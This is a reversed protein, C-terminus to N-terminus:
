QLNIIEIILRFKPDTTIETTNPIIYYYIMDLLGHFEFFTHSAITQIGHWTCHDDLTTVLAIRVGAPLGLLPHVGSGDAQKNIGQERM